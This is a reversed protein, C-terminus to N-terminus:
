PSATAVWRWAILGGAAEHRRCAAPSGDARVRRRGPSLPGQCHRRLRRRFRAPRPFQRLRAPDAAGGAARGDGALAVLLSPGEGSAHEDLSWAIDVNGEPTSLAGYKLANTGLENVALALSLAMRPNISVGAGSVTIQDTPFAAITNDVVQRMSASTWRTSNLIDHANALARLRENFAVRAIDIDDSRLTQSAIAAVMALINKIRHELEHTLM